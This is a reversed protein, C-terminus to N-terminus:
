SRRGVFGDSTILGANVLEELAASQELFSAGRARLLDRIGQATDSLVPSPAPAGSLWAACHERPYLAIGSSVQAWGFEGSLCLLDLLSPDYRDVRAPLVFREWAAAPVEFGDLQHLIAR